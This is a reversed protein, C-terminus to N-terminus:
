YALGAESWGLLTRVSRGLVWEQESATLLDTDRYFGISEAYSHQGVFALQEPTLRM